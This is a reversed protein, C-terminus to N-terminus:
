DELSILDGEAVPGISIDTDEMEASLGNASFSRALINTIEDSEAPPGNVIVRTLKRHCRYPLSLPRSTSLDIRFCKIVTEHQIFQRKIEMIDRAATLLSTEVHNGRIGLECQIIEMERQKVAFESKAAQLRFVSQRLQSRLSENSAELENYCSQLASLRSRLKSNRAKYHAVAKKRISLKLFRENLDNITRDDTDSSRSKPQDYHTAPPTIQCGERATIIAPTVPTPPPENHISSIPTIPTVPRWPYSM